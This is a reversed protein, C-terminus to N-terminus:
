LLIVAKHMTLVRYQSNPVRNKLHKLPKSSEQEQSAAERIEQFMFNPKAAEKKMSAQQTPQKNCPVILAGLLCLLPLPPMHVQYSM